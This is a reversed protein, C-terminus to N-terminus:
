IMQIWIWGEIGYLVLRLRSNLNQRQGWIAMHGHAIQRIGLHGWVVRQPDCLCFHALGAQIGCDCPLRPYQNGDVIIKWCHRRM